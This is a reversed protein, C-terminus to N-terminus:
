FYYCIVCGWPFQANVLYLTYLADVYCYMVIRIDKNQDSLLIRVNLNRIIPNPYGIKNLIKARKGMLPFNDFKSFKSLLNGFAFIVEWIRAYFEGKLVYFLFIQFNSMRSFIETTIEVHPTQLNVAIKLNSCLWTWHDGILIVCEPRALNTM